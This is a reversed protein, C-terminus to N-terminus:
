FTIQAAAVFLADVQASTLGLAAAVAAINPSDRHFETAYQWAISTQSNAGTAAVAANATDLLGAAALAAKAQAISIVQPVPAPPQAISCAPALVATTGAPPTWPTIGDWAICNLIVGNGDQVAYTAASAPVSLLLAAVITRIM